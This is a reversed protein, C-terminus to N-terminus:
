TLGTLTRRPESWRWRVDDGTLHVGGIWRDLGGSSRVWDEDGALLRKGHDNIAFEDAGIRTLAPNPAAALADLRLFVSADGWPCSEFSQTQFYLAQRQRAGLAAAVLIQQETRSLGNQISPYEEVFRRLAPALFPLAAHQHRAMDVLSSPEPARVAQWTTRGLELHETTIPVRSPLLRALEEGNLEGLGHFVARHTTDPKLRTADPYDDIQILSLRAGGPDQQSFWDLLQVLQLQDYLDHEFWLVTEDHERFGALTRDRTSFRQRIRSYSGWGFDALARARVDSLAELSSTEPVPGDHLPDAWALYVGPIEGEKFGEIVSDGNTVHLM